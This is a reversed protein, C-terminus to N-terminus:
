QKLTPSDFWLGAVLMKGNEDKFVLQISVDGKTEKSYKATYFVSNYGKETLTRNFKLTGQQYEGIKDMLPKCVTNVFADKDTAYTKQTKPDILKKFSDKFEANFYNSISDYDSKNIAILIKEAVEASYDPEVTGRKACGSSFLLFLVSLSLCILLVIGSLKKNKM